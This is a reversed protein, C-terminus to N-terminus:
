PPLARLAAPRWPAWAAGLFPVEPRDTRPGTVREFSRRSVLPWVGTALYYAGQLVTLTTM